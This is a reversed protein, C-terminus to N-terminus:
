VWIQLLQKARFNVIGQQRALKLSVALAIRKPAPDEKFWASASAVSMGPLWHSAQRSTILAAPKARHPESHGFINSLGDQTGLLTYGSVWALQHLANTDSSPLYQWGGDVYHALRRGGRGQYPLYPEQPPTPSAYTTLLRSYVPPLCTPLHHYTYTSLVCDTCSNIYTTAYSLYWCIYSIYSPLVVIGWFLANFSALGVVVQLLIGLLDKEASFRFWKSAVLEKPRPFGHWILM